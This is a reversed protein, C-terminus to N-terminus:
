ERLKHLLDFCSEVRRAYTLIRAAPAFLLRRLLSQSHASSTNRMELSGLGKRHRSITRCAPVARGVMSMQPATREEGFSSSRVARLVLGDGLSDRFSGFAQFIV